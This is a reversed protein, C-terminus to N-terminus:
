GERFSRRFSDALPELLYEVLTRSRAVLLVEAPMGPALDLSVEHKRAIIDLLLRDVEVVAKFYRESTTEDLMADASVSRVRGEIQPLLRQNFASLHVKAVQGPHVLDIDLPAVRAEIILDDEAPVIDLIPDGPGIVGGTTSFRRNVVVGAVPATVTTRQLVDEAAVTSESIETLQNQAEFLADAIEAQRNADLDLIELETEGIAQEARAVDAQNEARSGAIEAQDRQLALLRPKRGLGKDVLSAVDAIEEDILAIQRTESAIRATLGDIQRRLQAIRLRLIAVRSEMQERRTAFLHRQGDLVEAVEPQDATALLWPPFTIEWDGHQEAKLRAITATLSRRREQYINRSALAQTRALVVLPTGVIVPDGDRVLLEEIIGGELHQVIRRSGVPSIVGPALAGGALPAMAAWSGFVGFFVLCIVLSVLAPLRTKRALGEASATGVAMM